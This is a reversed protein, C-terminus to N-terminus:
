IKLNFPIFCSAYCSKVEFMLFLIIFNIIKIILSAAFFTGKKLPGAVLAKVGRSIPWLFKKQQQKKRRLIALFQNQCFFIRWLKQALNYFYIFYFLTINEKTAPGLEGGGRLPRAVLLIYSSRSGQPLIYFFWKFRFESNIKRSVEHAFNKVFISNLMPVRLIKIQNSM